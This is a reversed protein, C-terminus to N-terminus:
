SSGQRELNARFREAFTAPVNLIANPNQYDPDATEDGAIAVQTWPRHLHTELAYDESWRLHYTDGDLVCSQSDRLAGTDVIDRPSSVLQGNKRLTYNGWPYVKSEIAQTHASDIPEGMERWTEDILSLIRARLM